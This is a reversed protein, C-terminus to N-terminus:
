VAPTLRKQANPHMVETYEIQRAQLYENHEIADYRAPYHFHPPGQNKKFTTYKEGMGQQQNVAYNFYINSFIGYHPMSDNTPAPEFDHLHSFGAAYTNGLWLMMYQYGDYIANTEKGELFSLV